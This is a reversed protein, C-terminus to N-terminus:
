PVHIPLLDLRSGRTPTQCFFLHTGQRLTTTVNLPVEPGARWDIFRPEFAAELSGKTMVFMRDSLLASVFCTVMGNLQDGLGKEQEPQFTVYKPKLEGRKMRQHLLTYKDHWTGCLETGPFSTYAELDQWSLEENQWVNWSVHSLPAHKTGQTLLLM